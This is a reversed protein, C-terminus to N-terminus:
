GRRCRCEHHILEFAYATIQWVQDGAADRVPRMKGFEFGSGHDVAGPSSCRRPAKCTQPCRLAAAAAAAVAVEALAAAKAVVRVQFRSADQATAEGKARIDTPRCRVIAPPVLKNSRAVVPM